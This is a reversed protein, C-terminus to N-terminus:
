GCRPVGYARVAPCARAHGVGMDQPVTDPCLNNQTPYPVYPPYLAPTLDGSRVNHIRLSFVYSYPHRYNVTANM